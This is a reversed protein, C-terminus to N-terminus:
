GFWMIRWPRQSVNVTIFKGNDTTITYVQDIVGNYNDPNGFSKIEKQDTTATLAMAAPDM